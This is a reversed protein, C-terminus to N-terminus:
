SPLVDLLSELTSTTNDGCFIPELIKKLLLPKWPADADVLIFCMLKLSHDSHLLINRRPFYLHPALHELTLLISDMNIPSNHTM